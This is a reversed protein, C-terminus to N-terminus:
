HSKKKLDCGLAKNIASAIDAKNGSTSIINQALHRGQQRSGINVTPIKFFPTEIIGSSSNGIVLSSFSLLSYYKERGLSNVLIANEHSDAFLKIANHVGRNGPDANPASFVINFDECFPDLSDLMSSLEESSKNLDLTLPHYCAVITRKSSDIGLTRFLAEKPTRPTTLLNDVFPAGVNFVRNPNEGLQVVRNRYEECSVFHIHSFKTLSHRIAEDILGETREGGHIHALPVNSICAPIAASLMEYRDGLIIIIDPQLERIANAFGTIGVAVYNSIALGSDGEICLDIKRSIAFGDNQIDDITNGYKDSLHNGTVVLQLQHASSSNVLSILPYLISYDARTGTVILIKM